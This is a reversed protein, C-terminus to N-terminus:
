EARLAVIPDVKAARRAPLWCALSAVGMILAGVAWYTAGDTATLGYLRSALFRGTLASAGAGLLVGLLALSLSERLIMRVVHGSQAGLAMRIGIEGTRRLVAYSILGYLGIGVLLAVVSGFCGSLQAFLVQQAIQRDIQQVQTRHDILPLDPYQSRLHSQIAPLLTEVEGSTRVTFNAQGAGPGARPDFPNQSFAFYITPPRPDRVDAYGADNVVGVIETPKGQRVVRRGLPNAPGFLERSLTENIVATRPSEPTDRRDFTRGALLHLQLTTFFNETVVNMMPSLSRPRPSTDGEFTLTTSDRTDSLVPVSSFSVSEVSPLTKLNEAVGNYYAALQEPSRDSGSADVRFLLLQERNFGVDILRLNRLTRTLLGADILLMLSLAVQLVMLARGLRLAPRAAGRTGGAFEARLDLRTAQWTPALGFLLTTLLAAGAAFGLVPLDLRPQLVLHLSQSEQGLAHMGVLLDKGWWALGLGLVAGAAALVVSELLLQRVIRGRGAGLALRTAIERRRTAGRALLLNAVNLCAILLVLAALAQLIRLPQAYSARMHFLGKDGPLLQLQPKDVPEVYTSSPVPGTAQDDLASRRFLEELSAQARSLSVDPRLRGMVQVFWFRWPQKMFFAIQPWVESVRALPVFVDPAEGVQLTGVFEPPSVGVVTYLVGNIEMPQGLISPDRGFRKQWYRDSIVAVPAAGARDDDEGLLRGLAPQIGLGRYYGGSVLEGASSIETVGKVRIKLDNLPAFAFVDTFAQNHDRFWEFSLQSFSTSTQLKTGPAPDSWGSIPHMHKFGAVPAVWRFHVLEAPNPVPLPKVLVEHYLSFIATNGGIALALSLIAVSSFVPSRLLQRVAYRADQSSQELWTWGRGERAQEQLSALNGFQREAASRAEDPALGDALNDATREDLHFRMEEVM